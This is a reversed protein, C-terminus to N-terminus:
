DGFGSDYRVSAKSAGAPNGSDESQAVIVVRPALRQIWWGCGTAERAVLPPRGKVPASGLSMPLGCLEVLFGRVQMLKVRRLHAVCAAFSAGFTRLAYSISLPLERVLFPLADVNLLAAGGL